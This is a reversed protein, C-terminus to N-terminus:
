VVKLRRELKGILEQQSEVDVKVNKHDAMYQENDSLARDNLEVKAQNGSIKRGAEEREATVDTLLGKSFELGTPLSPLVINGANAKLNCWNM